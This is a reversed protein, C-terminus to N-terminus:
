LVISHGFHPMEVQDKWFFEDLLGSAVSVSIHSSVSVFFVAVPCDFILTVDCVRSLSKMDRKIDRIHLEKCCRFGDSLRRKNRRAKPSLVKWSNILSNERPSLDTSTWSSSRKACRFCLPVRFHVRAFPTM